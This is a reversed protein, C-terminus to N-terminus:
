RRQSKSSGHKRARAISHASAERDHSDGTDRGGHQDDREGRRTSLLRAKRKRSPRQSLGRVVESRRADCAHTSTEM